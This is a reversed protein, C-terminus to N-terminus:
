ENLGRREKNGLSFDVEKNIIETLRISYHSMGQKGEGIMVKM